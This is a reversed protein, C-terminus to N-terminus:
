TSRITKLTNTIDDLRDNQRIGKEEAIKMADKVHNHFETVPDEDAEKSELDTCVYLFM